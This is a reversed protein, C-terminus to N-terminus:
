GGCWVNPIIYRIKTEKESRVRRQVTNGCATDVQKIKKCAAMRFYFTQTSKESRDNTRDTDVLFVPRKSVFFVFRYSLNSCRVSPGQDQFVSRVDDPQDLSDAQGTFLLLTTMM